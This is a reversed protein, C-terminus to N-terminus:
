ELFKWDFKREILNLRNKMSEMKGEDGLFLELNKLKDLDLSLIKLTPEGKLEAEYVTKAPRKDNVNVWGICSWIIHFFDNYNYSDGIDLKLVEKNEEGVSPWLPLKKYYEKHMYESLVERM